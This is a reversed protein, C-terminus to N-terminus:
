SNIKVLAGKITMFAGAIHKSILGATSKFDQAAKIEVTMSKIAIKTM